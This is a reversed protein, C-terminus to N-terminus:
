DPEEDALHTSRPLGRHRAWFRLAMVQCLRRWTDTAGSDDTIERDFLACLEEDSLAMLVNLQETVPEAIFKKHLKNKLRKWLSPKKIHEPKRHMKCDPNACVGWSWRLFRHKRSSGCVPCMVKPNGAYAEDRECILMSPPFEPEPPLMVKM